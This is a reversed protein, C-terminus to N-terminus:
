RSCNPLTLERNPLPVRAAELNTSSTGHVPGSGGAGSSTRQVDQISPEVGLSNLGRSIAAGADELRRGPLGISTAAGIAERWEPQRSQFEVHSVDVLVPIFPKRSEHARVVEKTIQHSGLSEKSIILLFVRCQEIAQGTQTLYSPGPVGDREYYWSTYGEKELAAALQLVVSGDEEVHSIFVDAM